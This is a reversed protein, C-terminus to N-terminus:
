TNQNQVHAIIYFGLFFFTIRLAQHRIEQFQFLSIEATFIKNKFKAASLGTCIGTSFISGNATHISCATYVM